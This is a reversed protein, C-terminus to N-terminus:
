LILQMLDTLYFVYIITVSRYFYPPIRIEFCALMIIANKTKKNAATAEPLKAASLLLEALTDSVEAVTFLWNTLWVIAALSSLREM